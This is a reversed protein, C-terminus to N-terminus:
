RAVVDFLWRIMNADDCSIGNKTCHDRYAERAENESSFRFANLFPKAISDKNLNYVRSAAAPEQGAFQMNAVNRIFEGFETAVWAQEDAKKVLEVIRESLKANDEELKAYSKKLETLKCDTSFAEKMRDMREQDLAIIARLTEEPPLPPNSSHSLREQCRRVLEDSNM